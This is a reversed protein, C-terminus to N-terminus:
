YKKKAKPSVLDYSHDILEKVFKSKLSGDLYISNWHKKNLHWGPIIEEYQDRLEIAYDPDCKLSVRLREENLATIAYIKGHIKYVLVDPGFPTGEETLLKSNCYSRLEELNM